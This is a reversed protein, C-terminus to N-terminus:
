IKSLGNPFGGVMTLISYCVLLSIVLKKRNVFKIINVSDGRAYVMYSVFYLFQSYRTKRRYGKM